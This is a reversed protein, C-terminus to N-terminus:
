TGQNACAHRWKRCNWAPLHNCARCYPSFAGQCKKLSSQFDWFRSALAERFCEFAKAAADNCVPHKDFCDLRPRFDTVGTLAEYVTYGFAVIDLYGLAANVYKLESDSQAYVPLYPHTGVGRAISHLLYVDNGPNQSDETGCVGSLGFDVLKPTYLTQGGTDHSWFFVVNLPKVDGHVYRKGHMYKLGNGVGILAELVQHLAHIRGKCRGVVVDHLTFVGQEFFLAAPVGLSPKIGGFCSVVNRHNFKLVNAECDFRNLDREMDRKYHAKLIKVAIRGPRQDLDLSMVCGFGGVGLIRGSASTGASYMQGVVPRAPYEFPGLKAVAIGM